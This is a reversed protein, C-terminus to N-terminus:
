SRDKVCGVVEICETYYILNNINRAECISTNNKVRGLLMNKEEYDLSNCQLM